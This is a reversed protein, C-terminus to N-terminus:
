KLKEIINQVALISDYGDDFLVELTIAKILREKLENVAKESEQKAFLKMAKAAWAYTLKPSSHMSFDNMIGCENLIEEATQM